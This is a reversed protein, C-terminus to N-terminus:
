TTKGPHAEVRDKEPTLNLQGYVAEAARLLAQRDVNGSLVYGTGNDIWYFASVGDEEAFRFATSSDRGSEQTKVYLTLRRGSKDEYMFQAVPRQTGAILRGGMLHFGEGDLKAAKLHIGLRKSLWAVLHAEQNAGVEVPHAVESAYTAYAVAAHRVMPPMGDGAPLDRAQWGVAAGVGIWAVTAAVTAFRWGGGPLAPVLLGGRGPAGFLKAALGRWWSSQPQAAPSPEGAAALLATFRDPIPEDLVQDYREHLAANLSQYGAVQAAREPHQVLWDRVQRRQDEDLHGDVYAQLMTDSVPLPVTAASPERPPSDSQKSM